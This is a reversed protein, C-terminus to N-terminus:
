GVMLPLYWSYVDTNIALVDPSAWKRNDGTSPMAMGICMIGKHVQNEKSVLSLKAIWTSYHTVTSAIEINSVSRIMMNLDLPLVQSYKSPM